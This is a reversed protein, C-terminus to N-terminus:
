QCVLKLFCADHFGEEEGGGGLLEYKLKSGFARLDTGSLRVSAAATGCLGSLPPVSISCDLGTRAGRLRGPQVPGCPSERRARSEM